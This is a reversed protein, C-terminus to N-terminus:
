TRACKIMWAQPLVKAVLRYFKYFLRPTYVPRGRKAARLAGLAVKSPDCYPLRDFTASHGKIKGKTIFETDMPGPCVATVSIRRQRLEEGLGRSFASVYAKGASYVTMRPNPCFAAISSINVIHGGPAMYPLCLHTVATLASLNLDITRLPEALPGEGVNNLYGCGANNVLLCIEPKEAALAEALREFSERDCLDLDLLRLEKGPLLAGTEALKDRRRAILWYAEIEPFVVSAWRALEQGLGM